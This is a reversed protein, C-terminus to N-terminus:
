VIYFTDTTKIHKIIISCFGNGYKWDDSELDWDNSEWCFDYTDKIFGHLSYRTFMQKHLDIFETM